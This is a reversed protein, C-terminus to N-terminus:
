NFIAWYQFFNRSTLSFGKFNWLFKFYKEWPYRANYLVEDSIRGEFMLCFFNCIGM